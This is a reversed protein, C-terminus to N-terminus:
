NEDGVNMIFHEHEFIIECEDCMVDIIISEDNIVYGIGPKNRIYTEFQHNCNECICEIMM